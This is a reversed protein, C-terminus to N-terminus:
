GKLWKRVYSPEIVSFKTSYKTGGEIDFHLGREPQGHAAHEKRDRYEELGRSQHVHRVGRLYFTIGTRAATHSHGAVYYVFVALKKSDSNM